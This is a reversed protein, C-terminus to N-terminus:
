KTDVHERHSGFCVSDKTEKEYKRAVLSGEKEGDLTKQKDTMVKGRQINDEKEKQTRRRRRVGFIKRTLDNEKDM